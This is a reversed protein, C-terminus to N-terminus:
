AAPLRTLAQQHTTHKDSKSNPIFRVGCNLMTSFQKFIKSVLYKQITDTKEKLQHIGQIDIVHGMKAVLNQFLACM